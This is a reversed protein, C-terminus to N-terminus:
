KIEQSNAATIEKEKAYQPCQSAMPCYEACRMSQAPRFEKILPKSHKFGEKLIYADALKDNDYVRIAKKGGQLKVAITDKKAWRDEVTCPIDEGQEARRHLAVRKKLYAEMIKDDYLKIDHMIVPTRPYDKNSKLKMKSWDKLFAIIRASEVEYGHLRLMYAYINLQRDWMKKQDPFMVASAGTMKNDDMHKKAINFRDLTGSIQMGDIEISFTKENIINEDITEQLKDKIVKLLYNHGKDEGLELLTGAARQLIRSNVSGKIDGREIITHLGTGMAMAIMDMVDMEYSTTKKLMRVQPADIIQTASIDGM